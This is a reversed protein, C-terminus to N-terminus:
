TPEYIVKIKSWKELLDFNTLIEEFKEKNFGDVELM